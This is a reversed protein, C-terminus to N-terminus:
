ALVARKACRELYKARAFVKPLLLDGRMGGGLADHAAQAGHELFVLTAQHIADKQHYRATM